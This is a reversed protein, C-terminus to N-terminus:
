RVVVKVPASSAATFDASAGVAVRVWYTGRAPFVPSTSWSGNATRASVLTKWVKGQKVQLAIATRKPLHGLRCAVRDAVGRRITTKVTCAPVSIVAARTTARGASLRSTAAVSATVTTHSQAPYTATFWGKANTRVLKNGSTRGLSSVAVVRVPAGAVATGRDTVVRGTVTVPHGVVTTRIRSLVVKSSGYVWVLAAASTGTRGAETTVQASLQHDGTAAHPTWTVTGACSRVGTCSTTGVVAGDVLLAVQKVTDSQSADVGGAVTVEVPGMVVAGPSTLSATPLPSEVTVLVQASLATQGNGTLLRAQLAHQGTLGTSDWGIQGACTTGGSACSTTGVVTGDVLLSLSSVTDPQLQDVTGSVPVTVPGRVVSGSAPGDVSATPPDGVQVAVAASTAWVAGATKVTVTLSHSGYLSTTDWTFSQSCSRPSGPCPKEAAYSGDVYLQLVSVSDSDSADVEGTANVTVFGAVQSGATPSTISATPPPAAFAPSAGPLSLLL